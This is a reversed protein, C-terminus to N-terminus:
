EQLEKLYKKIEKIFEKEDYGCNEYIFRGILYNHDGTSNDLGDREITEQFKDWVRRSFENLTKPKLNKYEAREYWPKM